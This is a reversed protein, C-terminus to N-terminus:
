FDFRLEFGYYRSRVGYFQRQPSLGNLYILGLGVRGSAGVLDVGARASTTMKWGADEVSETFVSLGPEIRTGRGGRERRYEVGLGVTAPKLGRGGIVTYSGKGSLGVPGVRHRLWLAVAERTWDSRRVDFREAYEDGLHSSEHFLELALRSPGRDIVAHTGVVWDNSILASKPDDLSFRGTVRITLGFFPARSDGGLRVVPVNEGISVDGEQELGFLSEPRRVWIVRGVVGSAAQASAPYEFPQVVPFWRSQAGLPVAPLLGVFALARRFM